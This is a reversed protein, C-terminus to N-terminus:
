QEVPGIRHDGGVGIVGVRFAMGAGFTGGCARLVHVYMLRQGDWFRYSSLELM